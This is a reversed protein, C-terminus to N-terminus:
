YRRVRASTEEVSYSGNKVNPFTFFESGACEYPEFSMPLRRVTVSLLHKAQLIDGESSYKVSYRLQLQEKKITM